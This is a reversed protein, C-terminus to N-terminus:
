PLRDLEVFRKAVYKLARRAVSALLKRDSRLAEITTQAGAALAPLLAEAIEVPVVAVIGRRRRERHRKVKEAGSLRVPTHDPSNIPKVKSDTDTAGNMIETETPADENSIDTM